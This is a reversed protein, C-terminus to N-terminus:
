KVNILIYITYSYEGTTPLILNSETDKCKLQKEDEARNGNYKNNKLCCWLTQSYDIVTRPDFVEKQRGFESFILLHLGITLLM